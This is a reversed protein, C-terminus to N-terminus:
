ALPRQVSTFANPVPLEQSHTAIHGLMGFAPTVAKLCHKGACRPTHTQDVSRTEKVRWKRRKGIKNWVIMCEIKVHLM